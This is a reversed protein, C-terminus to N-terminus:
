WLASQTAATTRGAAGGDSSRDCILLAAISICRPSRAERSSRMREMSGRRGQTLSWAVRVRLASLTPWFYSHIARMFRAWPPAAAAAGAGGGAATAGCGCGCGCAAPCGGAPDAAVDAAGVGRVLWPPPGGARPGPAGPVLMEVSPSRLICLSSDQAAATHMCSHRCNNHRSCLHM